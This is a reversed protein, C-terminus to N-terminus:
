YGRWLIGALADPYLWDNSWCGKVAYKEKGRLSYGKSHELAELDVLRSSGFLERGLSTYQAHYLAYALPWGGEPPNVRQPRVVVRKHRYGFSGYSPSVRDFPALLWDDQDTWPGLVMYSRDLMQCTDRHAAGFAALDPRFKVNRSPTSYYLAQCREAVRAVLNAAYIGKKRDDPCIKLRYPTVLAGDFYDTGCSEYFSGETFSKRVNITFGACESAEQFLGAAGRPIIVDDGYVSLNGGTVPTIGEEVCSAFALAYFILTELEFTYGNGMSSFKSFDYWRGEVRYAQCRWNDLAVAWDIPLLSYVLCYAILDSASSFDMTCLGAKLAVQALRQNVSQDDLDIGHRKLRNRIWSGYGKQVFGNLLPEICIVRDTKADKPVTSLESGLVLDVAIDDGRVWGPVEGLLESLLSAAHQTCELPAVLKKYVSTDGRVGFAAGPGFALNLQELSPVEGLISAIKGQAISFVRELRSNFRHGVGWLFNTKRCQAECDIFKQYAVKQTDIGTRLFPNKSVLKVAQYDLYFDMSTLYVTPDVDKRALQELEGYKALLYCSLATPTNLGEYVQAAYRLM